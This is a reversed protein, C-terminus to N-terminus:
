QPTLIVVRIAGAADSDILGDNGVATIVVTGTSPAGNVRSSKLERLCGFNTSGTINGIVIPIVESDTAVTIGTNITITGSSLTANVAQMAPAQLIFADVQPFIALVTTSKAIGVLQVNTAAPATATIAGATAASLFYNAGATLGTTTYEGATQVFASTTTPKAVVVGIAPRKAADDADAEAVTNAASIYVWEGVAVGTACTYLGGSGAGATRVFASGSYMWISGESICPFLRGEIRENTPVSSLAAENAVAFYLRKNVKQALLSDYNGPM